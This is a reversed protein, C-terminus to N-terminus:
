YYSIYNRDTKLNTNVAYDKYFIRNLEIGKRELKGRVTVSGNERMAARMLYVAYRDPYIRYESEYARIENEGDELILYWTRFHWSGFYTVPATLEIEKGRYMDYRAFLDQLDTTFVVQKGEFEEQNKLYTDMDTKVMHVCGSVVIAIILLVVKM